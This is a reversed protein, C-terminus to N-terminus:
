LPPKFGDKAIFMRGTTYTGDTGLLAEIVLYSGPTLLSMDTSRQGTGFVLTEPGIHFTREGEPSALTVSARGNQETIGSVKGVIMTSGLPQDWPRSGMAPAPPEGPYLRIGSALQNDGAYWAAVVMGPKIDQVGRRVVPLVEYTENLFLSVVKGDETLLEMTVGIMGGDAVSKM